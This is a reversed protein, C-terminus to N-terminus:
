LVDLWADTLEDYAAQYADFGYYASDHRDINLASLGADYGMFVQGLVCWETTSMDLDAPNVDSRWDPVHLTLLAEGRLVCDETSPIM